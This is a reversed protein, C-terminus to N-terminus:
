LTYCAHESCYYTVSFPVYSTFQKLMKIYILVDQLKYLNINICM